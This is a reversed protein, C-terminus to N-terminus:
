YVEDITLKNVVSVNMSRPKPYTRTMVSLFATVSIGV